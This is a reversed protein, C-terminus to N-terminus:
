KALFTTTVSVKGVLTVKTEVEVVAPTYLAEVPWHDNIVKALLADSVKVMTTVTLWSALPVIVLLTTTVDETGSGFSLFSVLLTLPSTGVKVKFLVPSPSPLM